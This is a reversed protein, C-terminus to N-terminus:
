TTDMQANRQNEEKLAGPSIYVVHGNLGGYVSFDYASQEITAPLDPRLLAVDAPKIRVETLLTDEVPTIDMIDASPEIVGVQQKSTRMAPATTVKVANPAAIVDAKPGDDFIVIRNIFELLAPKHTM